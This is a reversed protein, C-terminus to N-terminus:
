ADSCNFITIEQILSLASRSYFPHNKTFMLGAPRSPFLFRYLAAYQSAAVSTKAHRHAPTGAISPYEERLGVCLPCACAGCVIGSAGEVACGGASFGSGDGIGLGSSFFGTSLSGHVFWGILLGAAAWGPAAALSPVDADGGIDGTL